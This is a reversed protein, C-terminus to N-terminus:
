SILRQLIGRLMAEEENSLSALFEQNATLMQANLEASISAGKETLNILISRRDSPNPIREVMGAIELRDVIGTLTPNTLRLREALLQFNIGDEEGLFNVVLAQVGTLGYREVKKDWFHTGTRSCTSLQFFICENVNM